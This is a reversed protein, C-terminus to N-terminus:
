ITADDGAWEMLVDPCKEENSTGDSYKIPVFGHREYFRIARRNEQFTYLKIPAGLESKALDVLKSGIGQGVFEPHLYLHDLWNTERHRGLGMMGIIKDDVLAVTVQTKPILTKTIWQKVEDDTHALPAFSVLKKRSTLYVEAVAEADSKEASRFTTYPPM